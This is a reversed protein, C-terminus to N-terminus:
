RYPCGNEPATNRSPVSQKMLLGFDQTWTGDGVKTGVGAVSVGTGVNRFTPSLINRCHDPSAMWAGVVSRPTAYGSAINEGAARWDYGSASIRQTFNFGHTFVGTDVMAQTHRQAALDLKSSALLAPLGRAQREHNILCVVADRLVPAPAGTVPADAYACQSSLIARHSHRAHAVAGSAGPLGVLMGAALGCVVAVPLRLRSMM